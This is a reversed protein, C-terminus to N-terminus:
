YKKFTSIILDFGEMARLYENYDEMDAETLDEVNFDGIAADLINYVIAFTHPELQFVYADFELVDNVNVQVITTPLNTKKEVSDKVGTVVAYDWDVAKLYKKYADEANEANRVIVVLSLIDNDLEPSGVATYAIVDGDAVIQDTTPKMEVWGAPMEFTYGGAPEQVVVNVPAEAVPEFNGTCATLFLIMLVILIKM